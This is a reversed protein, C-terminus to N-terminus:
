AIGTHRLGSAPQASPCCWYFQKHGHATFEAVLQEAATQQSCNAILFENGNDDQRWVQWILEVM